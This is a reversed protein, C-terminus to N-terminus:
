STILFGVRTQIGLFVYFSMASMWSVLLIHITLLLTTPFVHAVVATRSSCALVVTWTRERSLPPVICCYCRLFTHTFVAFLLVRYDSSSFFASGRNYELINPRTIICLVLPVELKTRDEEEDINTPTCVPSPLCSIRM